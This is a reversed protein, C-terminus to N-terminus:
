KMNVFETKYRDDEAKSISMLREQGKYLSLFSNIRVFLSESEIRGYNYSTSISSHYNKNGSNDTFYEKGEKTIGYFNRVKELPYATTDIIMNGEMDFSFHNYRYNKDGLRTIRNLLLSNSFIIKSLFIIHIFFYLLLHNSNHIYM